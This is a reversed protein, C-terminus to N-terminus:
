PHGHTSETSILQFGDMAIVGLGSAFTWTEQHTTDGNLQVSCNVVIISREKDMFPTKKKSIIKCLAEKSTGPSGITPNTWEGKAFDILTITRGSSKRMLKTSDAILTYTDKIGWPEKPTPLARGGAPGYSPPSEPSAPQFCCIEEEIVATMDTRETCLQRIEMGNDGTFIKKAGAVPALFLAPNPSQAYAHSACVLVFLTLCVLETYRKLAPTHQGRSGEGRGRIRQKCSKELSMAKAEPEFENRAIDRKM